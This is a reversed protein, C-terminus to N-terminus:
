IVDISDNRAAKQNILIFLLDFVDFVRGTKNVIM